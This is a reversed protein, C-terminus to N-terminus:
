MSCDDLEDMFELFPADAAFVHSDIFTIDSEPGKERISNGLQGVNTNLTATDQESHEQVATVSSRPQLDIQSSRTSPLPGGLGTDQRWANNSESPVVSSCDDALLRTSLLYLVPFSKRFHEDSRLHQLTPQSLLPYDIWESTGDGAQVPPNDAESGRKVLVSYMIGLGMFSPPLVLLNLDKNGLVTALGTRILYNSLDHKWEDLECRDLEWPLVKTHLNGNVFRLLKTQLILMGVSHTPINTTTDLFMDQDQVTRPRQWPQWEEVGNEDLQLYRVVENYHLLPTAQRGASSITVVIFCVLWARAVADHSAATQQQETIERLMQVTINMLRWAATTAGSGLRTLALLVGCQIHGLEVPRDSDLPLMSYAQAYFDDSHFQADQRAHNDTLLHSLSSSSYAYVAWLAARDGCDRLPSGVSYQFATKLTVHRELIPLWSQGCRFFLQLLQPAYVPPQIGSGTGQWRLEAGLAKAQSQAEPPTTAQQLQGLRHRENSVVVWCPKSDSGSQLEDQIGGEDGDAHQEDDDNLLVDIHRAVHSQKWKDLLVSAPATSDTRDSSATLDQKSLRGLLEDVVSEVNGVERFTLGWLLELVRVYGCRLGRRKFRAEYTCRKDQQKCTTCTPQQGDCRLKAYRCPACARSIRQRKGARRGGDEDAVNNAADSQM